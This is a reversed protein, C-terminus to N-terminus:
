LRALAGVMRSWAVVAPASHPTIRTVIWGKPEGRLEGRIPSGARPSRAKWARDGGGDRPWLKPHTGLATISGGVGHRLPVLGQDGVFDFALRAVARVESVTVSDVAVAQRPAHCCRRERVRLLCAARILKRCVRQQWPHIHLLVM